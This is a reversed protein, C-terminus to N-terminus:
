SNETNNNNNHQSLRKAMLGLCVSIKKYELNKEEGDVEAQALQEAGNEHALQFLLLQSETSLRLDGDFPTTVDNFRGLLEDIMYVLGTMRNKILIIQKDRDKIQKVMMATFVDQLCTIDPINQIIEIANALTNDIPTAPTDETPTAPTDDIPPAPTDEIPPAPTDEIPMRKKHKATLLHKSFSKNNNTHINCLECNYKHLVGAVTTTNIPTNVNTTM